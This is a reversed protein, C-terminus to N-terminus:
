ASHSFSKARTLLSAYKLCAIIDEKELAPYDDLIENETMGSSLLDLILEVTYMKNRITPKGHCVQPNISIRKLVDEM